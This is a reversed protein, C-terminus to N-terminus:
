FTEINLKQQQQKLYVKENYIRNKNIFANATKFLSKMSKKKRLHTHKRIMFHKFPNVYTACHHYRRNQRAPVM